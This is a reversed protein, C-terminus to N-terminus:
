RGVLIKYSTSLGTIDIESFLSIRNSFSQGAELNINIVGDNITTIKVILKNANDVNDIIIYNGKEKLKYPYTDDQNLNLFVEDRDISNRVYAM